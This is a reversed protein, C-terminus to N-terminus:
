FYYGAKNAVDRTIEEILKIDEKSLDKKYKYNMNRLKGISSIYKHAEPSDELGVKHFVETLYEHPKEVFDEYRIEIFHGHQVYKKEEWTLSVVRKWQLAALAVPSRNRKEWEKIYEEPLGQWWPRELGGGERWFKVKLLSNVVARPDRIIHIFYADPFISQLFCIRPPGTFKAFFRKKGQFRLLTRVYKIIAEKEAKSAKQHALYDFSFKKGCFKEWVNYNEVCYPLFRRIFSILGKSQRKKGRLYVGLFPIDVLKNLFSLYPLWPFIELYKSIWGLDKHISIAEALVTTGSRGMGILFIPEKM